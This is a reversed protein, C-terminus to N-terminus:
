PPPAAAADGGADGGAADAAADAPAATDTTADPPNGPVANAGDSGAGGVEAGPAMPQTDAQARKSACGLSSVLCGLLVTAFVLKFRGFSM